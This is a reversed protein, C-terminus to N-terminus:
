GMVVRDLNDDNIMISEIKLIKRMDTGKQGIDGVM